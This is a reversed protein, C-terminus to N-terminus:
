VTDARPRKGIPVKPLHRKQVALDLVEDIPTEQSYNNVLSKNIKKISETSHFEVESGCCKSVKVHTIYYKLIREAVLLGTMILLGTTIPEPM